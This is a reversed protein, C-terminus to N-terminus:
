AITEATCIALCDVETIGHANLLMKIASLTSGTTVIDDICLVRAHADKIHELFSTSLTYRDKSWKIREYRGGSHQSRHENSIDVADICIHAFSELYPELRISLEKMQDWKRKSSAFSSSPAYVLLSPRMDILTDSLRAIIEDAMVETFSELAVPDLKYKFDWVLRKMLPDKYSFFTYVGKSIFLSPDLRIKQRRRVRLPLLYDLVTMILSVFRCIQSTLQTKMTDM